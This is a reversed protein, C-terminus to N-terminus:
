SASTCSSSTSRPSSSASRARHRRGGPLAHVHGALVLFESVFSSLGPLALGSLGVVLFTGALVPTVRQWGGYDPIRKSGRRAVLFAPSSSCRRRDLLRPQGHLPDLRRRRRDDARLHRPRHLRLPQDLHLRHAADHRDPRHRAARRLHGLHRRARHRGADGVALGRPLAPPLLPDHRLHRGQRARRRAARRDGSAVRHRCGPAVHAGAVDAGQRRVRHLLRRVDLAACRDLRRPQRHPERDLFGSRRRGPGRPLGRHRGRAHHARRRALLPPVEDRRVAPAVGGFLGILFYVPILMAEFFVYFLFVDTAAFVGVMFAELVLMLAFYKKERRPLGRRHRGELGRAPLGPHPDRAMVILSLAIGDVGLAYSVGFQPIWPHVEALQFQEAADNDFQAWALLALLLTVLSFGLAVPKANRASEGPLAAVILAGVLPVVMM